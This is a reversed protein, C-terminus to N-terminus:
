PSRRPRAGSRGAPSPARWSGPSPAPRRRRARCRATASREGRQEGDVDHEADQVLAEDVRDRDEGRQRRRRQARQDRQEHQVDVEADDREDADHQQEADDLLVRDHHDVERELGLAVLAEVRLRRDVAGRRSRKRGIRIVVSAASNPASGSAIPRPAPESSRRGSPMLMTPPRQTECIRFRNEVGTM